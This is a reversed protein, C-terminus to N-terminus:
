YQIAPPQCVLSILRSGNSDPVAFAWPRPEERNSLGNISISLERLKEQDCDLEYYIVAVPDIEGINAVQEHHVIGVMQDFSFELISTIPPRYRGKVKEAARELIKGGFQQKIDVEEIQKYRLCKTWVRRHNEPNRRIGMSEYFCEQDEFAGGYLRWDACLAQSPLVVFALLLTGIGTRRKM